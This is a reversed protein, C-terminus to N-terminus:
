NCTSYLKENIFTFQSAAQIASHSWHNHNASYQSNEEPTPTFNACYELRHSARALLQLFKGFWTSWYDRSICNKCKLIMPNGWFNLFFNGTGKKPRSSVMCTMLLWIWRTLCGRWRNLKHTEIKTFYTSVRYQCSPPSSFSHGSSETNYEQVKRTFCDTIPWFRWKLTELSSLTVSLM